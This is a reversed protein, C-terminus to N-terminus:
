YFADHGRHHQRCFGHASDASSQHYNYSDFCHDKSSMQRRSHGPPNKPNPWLKIKDTDFRQLLEDIELWFSKRGKSSLNGDCDFDEYSYCSNVTLIHQGTKAVANNLADNFKNRLQTIHGMRGNYSGVRKLMRVYIISTDFGSAAGPKKDLLHIRLRRIMM